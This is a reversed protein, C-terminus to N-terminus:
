GPRDLAHLWRATMEAEPKSEENQFVYVLNAIIRMLMARPHAIALHSPDLVIKQRDLIEQCDDMSMIRGRAFPDFLIDDHRVIFHGPFNVGEIEMGARRGVLIYLLSLSIPIGLRSDIVTPLLSNATQYYDETNGRFRFEEGLLRAIIEVRHRATYEQALAPRLRLAWQDLRNEYYPIDVGPQLARALLWAAPEIDGEDGFRACLENMAERAQRADIEGLVARVNRTVREDDINLLDRLAPIAAAGKKALEEKVLNVTGADDDRLLRVIADKQEFM